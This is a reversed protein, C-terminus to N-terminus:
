VPRPDAAPGVGEGGSGASTFGTLLSSRIVHPEGLDNNDIVVETREAPRCQEVYNRWGARYRPWRARELREDVAAAMASADDPLDSLLFDLWHRDARADAELLVAVDWLRQYEPRQLFLGDFILVAPGEVDATEAVPTDTPEDFAGILVRRRGAAFPKLLEDVIRDLQHSELYYGEPSTPGLRMRESRPRHFSDTTSRLVRRGGAEVKSALEDAFTSKGSGSRGDVAVLTRESESAVVGEAVTSLVAEREPTVLLNPNGDLGAPMGLAAM